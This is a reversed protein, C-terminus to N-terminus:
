KRKIQMYADRIVQKLCDEVHLWDLSRIGSPYKAVLRFCQAARSKYFHRHEEYEMKDLYPKLKKFFSYCKCKCYDPEEGWDTCADVCDKYCPDNKFKEEYPFFPQIAYVLGVLGLVLISVLIVRTMNMYTRGRKEASLM